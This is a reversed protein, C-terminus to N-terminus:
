KLLELVHKCFWIHRKLLHKANMVGVYQGDYMPSPEKMREESKVIEIELYHIAREKSACEVSCM